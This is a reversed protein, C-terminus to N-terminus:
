IMISSTASLLILISAGVFIASADGCANTSCTVEYTLSPGPGWCGVLYPFFSTSAYAYSGDDLWFGNCADVDDCGWLEGASNFPGFIVHGDKALGYPGGYTGDDTSWNDSEFSFDGPFCDQVTDDNCVGPKVTTSGGNPAACPSISHAHQAYTTPAAHTLCGDMTTGEGLVADVSGLALGNFLAVNLRGFGAWTTIGTCEDDEVITTVDNMNSNATRSIDCLVSETEDQTDFDAESYNLIGTMDPNWTTTFDVTVYDGVNPNAVSSQWCKNPMNNSQVRIRIEDLATDEFCAM